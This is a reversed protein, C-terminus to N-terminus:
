DSIETWFRVIANFIKERLGRIIETKVRLEHPNFYAENLYLTRNIEIQIWPIGRRGYHVQSIYGGLFPNNITVAGENPFVRRFSEALTQIWEPPCTIPRGTPRGRNDGRNCLCILPRPQGLNDSIPPSKPLMSHCDLALKINHNDLLDDLKKHYPFYYRQLLEEILAGDPFMGKKYVPTGNTTVAKVVGDPNKPPRDDPARNVDVIARAIPMEIFAAVSNRFDYIERTLTDGDYFVDRGTISVIEEIEPPVVDGGHPISILLPYVTGMKTDEPQEM